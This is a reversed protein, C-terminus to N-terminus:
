PNGIKTYCDYSGTANICIGTANCSSLMGADIGARRHGLSDCSYSVDEKALATFVECAKVLDTCTRKRAHLFRDGCSISQLTTIALALKYKAPKQTM